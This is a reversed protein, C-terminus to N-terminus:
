PAQGWVDNVILPLSITMVRYLRGDQQLYGAQAAMPNGAQGLLDVNRVLGGLTFDGSYAAMLTSVAGIVAPDIADQPESLTSTYIRVNLVLRATTQNLGSNLRAPEILDVWVAATAGVGPPNRPEHGNVREFRGSALAHSVVADIIGQPALGSAPEALDIAAAFYGVKATSDTVKALVAKLGATSYTHDLSPTSSVSVASGDGWDVTYVAGTLGEPDTATIDAVVDLGDATLTVSQITPPTQGPLGLDYEVDAGYFTANITSTPFSTPTGNFVGNGNTAGATALARLAGDSSDVNSDLAHSIAGYNGGTTYSVLFRTGAARGVPSALDYSSWGSPLSSALSATGLVAGATSWITATRGPFAVATAPAWVRIRTLTVDQLVSYETGLEYNDADVVGTPDAGSWGVLTM